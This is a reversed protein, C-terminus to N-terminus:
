SAPQGALQQIQIIVFEAPKVPAFAVLINVVGREIDLPTTTTSDCTVFYQYFAGRRALDAMFAGISLRLQSWLTEANPEFVAWKTSNYLSVEIYSTLRRVPVYKFDNTMVDAGRLTRAGWVVGGFIPFNRLANIGLQNLQGNEADNIEAALLVNRLAAETGAPAKWVGRTTDITAYVGAINGSPGINRPRNANLPDAITVRPFYVAAYESRIGSNTDLWDIMGQTTNVTKPIDVILFARHNTDQCVVLAETIIGSLTALVAAAPVCLINFATNALTKIGAILAASGSGAKWKTGGNGSGDPPTDGNNGGALATFDIAAPRKTGGGEPLALRVLQSGHNVVDLAYYDSTPDLNLNLYTESNLVLTQGNSMSIQRVYVNFQKENKPDQTRHDVRVQLNDGWEGPSVANVILVQKIDADNLAHTAKTPGTSGGALSKFGANKVNKAAADTSVDPGTQAPRNKSSNAPITVATLASSATQAVVTAMTLAKYIEPNGEVATGQANLKRIVLNFTDEVAEAKSEKTPPLYDVGVQIRNGAEGTEKATVLLSPNGNDNLPYTANVTAGAVVRVVFANQGGNLFYQRLAYSAESRSDLGGFRREFDAFSSITIPTNLPGWKFYDVFATSSTGGGVITHVGSPLEEIYVGPYSTTVPM